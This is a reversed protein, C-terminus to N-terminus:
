QYSLEESNYLKLVDEIGDYLEQLNLPILKKTRQIQLSRAGAWSMAYGILRSVCEANKAGMAKKCGSWNFDLDLYDSAHEDIVKSGSNTELNLLRSTFVSINKHCNKKEEIHNCFSKVDFDLAVGNLDYGFKRKFWVHMGNQYNFSDTLSNVSVCPLWSDSQLPSYTIHITQSYIDDIENRSYGIAQLKKCLDAMAENIVQSGYCHSYFVVKSFNVCAQELSLREGNEDVLLPLLFKNTFQSVEEKTLNGVTQSESDRGYVCAIIDIDQYTSSIYEKKAKLGMMREVRSCRGNAQIEDITGNGGFNIFTTKTISFNDTDGNWHHPKELDRLGYHTDIFREM